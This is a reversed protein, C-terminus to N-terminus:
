NMRKNTTIRKIVTGNSWPEIRKMGSYDEISEGDGHSKSEDDDDNLDNHCTQFLTGVKRKNCEHRFATRIKALDMESLGRPPKIVLSPSLSVITPGGNLTYARDHFHMISMPDYEMLSSYPYGHTSRTWFLKRFRPQINDWMIRVFNDRNPHTVEDNFGLVHMLAHMIDITRMCDYGLTLFASAGSGKLVAHSCERVADPNEISLWLYEPAEKPPPKSGIDRFIVCSRREFMNMVYRIRNRIMEGYHETDIYYPVIGEPWRFIVPTKQVEQSDKEVKQGTKAWARVENSSGTTM